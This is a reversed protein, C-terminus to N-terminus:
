ESILLKIGNEELSIIRKKYLAGIAAKFNKKSFKFVKYIEEPSSKDTLPLFDKNNELEKIIRDAFESIKEYGTKVLSLDIKGDTRIKKIFGPIKDGPNLLQFVENKYIIGLHSYDIIANYGLDTENVIILDVEEGEDYDIPLNNLYNEIKSSAAIRRTDTDVYVYVLYKQGVEMPRRQERFPVFLDKPLGWNLFAGVPTVAVVELLAFEDVMALPKETTAVLRDESDLYIFADIMDEPQTGEPVYRKPMLIEGLDGGDLYIGFDVEKVVYLHNIKGIETM